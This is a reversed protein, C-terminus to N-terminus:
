AKAETAEIRAMLTQKAKEFNRRRSFKLGLGSGVVVGIYVLAWFIVLVPELPIGRSDTVEIGHRGIWAESPEKRQDVCILLESIDNAFQHCVDPQLSPDSEMLTKEIIAVDTPAGKPWGVPQTQSYAVFYEIRHKGPEFHLLQKDDFRLDFGSVSDPQYPSSFLGSWNKIRHRRSPKVPFRGNPDEFSLSGFLTHTPSWTSSFDFWFNGSRPLWDLGPESMCIVPGIITAWLTMFVIIVIRKSWEDKPCMGFKACLDSGCESCHRSAAGRVPYRCKSCVIQELTTNEPM